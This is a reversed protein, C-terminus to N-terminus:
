VVARFQFRVRTVTTVSAHVVVTSGAGWTRTVNHNHKSDQKVCPILNSSLASLFADVREKGNNKRSWTRPVVVFTLTITCIIIGVSVFILSLPQAVHFMSLAGIFIKVTFSLYQLAKCHQDYKIGFDRFYGPRTIKKVGVELHRISM